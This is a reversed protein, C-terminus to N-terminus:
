RKNNREDTTEALGFPYDKEVLLYPNDFVLKDAPM